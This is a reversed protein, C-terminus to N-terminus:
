MKQAINQKTQVLIYKKCAPGCEGTSLSCQKFFAVKYSDTIMWDPTFASVTLCVTGIMSLVGSIKAHKTFPDRM